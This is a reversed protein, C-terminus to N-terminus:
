PGGFFPGLDARLFAVIPNQLPHRQAMFCVSLHAGNVADDTIRPATCNSAGAAATDREKENTNAIIKSISSSPAESYIFSPGGSGAHRVRSRTLHRLSLSPPM